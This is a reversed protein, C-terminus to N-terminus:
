SSKSVTHSDCCGEGSACLEPGYFPLPRRVSATKTVNPIARM